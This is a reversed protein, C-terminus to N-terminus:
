SYLNIVELLNKRNDIIHHQNIIAKQIIEDLINEKIFTFSGQEHQNVDKSLIIINVKPLALKTLILKRKLTEDALLYSPLIIISDERLWKFLDSFSTFNKTFWAQKAPTYPYELTLIAPM